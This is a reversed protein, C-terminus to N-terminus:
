EPVDDRDRHRRAMEADARRKAQRLVIEIRDAFDQYSDASMVAPFSFKVPGDELNFSEELVSPGKISSAPRDLIHQAHPTVPPHELQESEEDDPANYADPIGAVLNFTALYSKAAKEAADPTFQRKILSFKLNELSPFYDPFDKRIETSASISWDSVWVLGSNCLQHRLFRM